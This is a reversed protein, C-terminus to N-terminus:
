DHAPVSSKTSRRSGFRLKGDEGRGWSFLGGGGGGGNEGHGHSSGTRSRFSWAPSSPRAQEAVHPDLLHNDVSRRSISMAAPATSGGGMAHQHQHQHHHHHPHKGASHGVTHRGDCCARVNELGEYADESMTENHLEFDLDDPDQTPIDVFSRDPSYPSEPGSWRMYEVAPTGSRKSM